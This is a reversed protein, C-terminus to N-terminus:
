MLKDFYTKVADDKPMVTKVNSETSKADPKTMTPESTVRDTRNTDPKTILTKKAVEQNFASKLDHNASTDKDVVMAGIFGDNRSNSYATTIFDELKRPDMLLRQVESPDTKLYKSLGQAFLRKLKEDKEGAVIESTYIKLVAEVIESPPLTKESTHWVFPDLAGKSELWVNPYFTVIATPIESGDNREFLDKYRKATSSSSEKNVDPMTVSFSNSLPDKMIPTKSGIVDVTPETTSGASPVGDVDDEDIVTNNVGDTQSQLKDVKWKAM